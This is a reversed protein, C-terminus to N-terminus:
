AWLERISQQLVRPVDFGVHNRDRVVVRGGVAVHRVDAVTCSFVAASLASIADVGATRVSDLDITVLDALAGVAILGADPWGLSAHGSATAMTLLSVVDHTGRQKSLVREGMEVARAEEFVDIVAHSDSGLSIAIGADRFARTPGIGDALDRETTPCMCVTCRHQALLGIDAASSHTAHVASFRDSLAGHDAFVQMPTKNYTALCQENEAPQESVHAHLPANNAAAWRAITEISQPDVARVSHIAAGIRIRSPNGLASVRQAWTDAHGDTFRQQVENLPAGFGGSLYCTDLLTLRLGAEAAAATLAHGMANADAYPVGGPGHHLYHFEGVSTIGALVMEGFVARALVFYSDPNLKAAVAYM